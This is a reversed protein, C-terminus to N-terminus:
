PCEIGCRSPMRWFGTATSLIITGGTFSPSFNIDMPKKRSPFSGTIHRPGM